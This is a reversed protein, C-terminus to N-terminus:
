CMDQSTQRVVEVYRRTLGALDRAGVLASGVGLAAAGIDLFARANHLHIGGTAVLRAEPFPNLLDRVYNPGAQGAPFLKILPAGEDLAAAVETPSFAGPIHLVDHERAWAFVESALHPSVLFRAGADVASEADSVTRVTGAGILTMAALGGAAARLADLAGETALSFEIADIGNEALQRAATVAATAPELRVIALLRGGEIEKARRERESV